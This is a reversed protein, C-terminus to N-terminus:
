ILDLGNLIPLHAESIILDFKEVAHLQLADTTNSCFHIDTIRHKTLNQWVNKQDETSNSVVLVKM